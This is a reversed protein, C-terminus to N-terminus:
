NDGRSALYDLCAKELSAVDPIVAEEGAWSVPMLDFPRKQVGERLQIEEDNVRALRPIGQTLLAIFYLSDSVGTCNLVAIRGRSDVSPRAGGNLTEFALLPVSQERWNFDGLYWDPSDSHPVVQGFPVIEAVTVNPVLLMEGNLPILLSAVERVTQLEIPQRARM